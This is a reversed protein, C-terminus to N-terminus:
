TTSMRALTAVTNMNRATGTKEAPLRLRTRAMGTPYFVFMEREGSVIKEDALGKAGELPDGPIPTDTFLAMVRNPPQDRFPNRAVVSAMEAGTRLIVGIPAGAHAHLRTELADRIFAESGDAEFVANGSAIYTRVDEFGAEQCLRQFDRMALKGHGGVNIARLLAVYRVM